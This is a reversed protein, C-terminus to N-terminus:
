CEKIVCGYEVLKDVFYEKDIHKYILNRNYKIVDHVSDMCEVECMCENKVVSGNNNLIRKYLRWYGYYGESDEHLM